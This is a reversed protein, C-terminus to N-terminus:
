RAWEIQCSEKASRLGRQDEVKATAIAAEQKAAGDPPRSKVMEADVGLRDDEAVGRASAVLAAQCVKEKRDDIGLPKKDLIQARGAHGLNVTIM